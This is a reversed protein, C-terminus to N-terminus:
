MVVVSYYFSVDKAQQFWGPSMNLVGAGFLGGEPPTDFLSHRWVTTTDADLSNMFSNLPQRLAVTASNLNDQPVILSCFYIYQFASASSFSCFRVIRRLSFLCPLYWLVIRNHRDLVTAPEEIEGIMPNDFYRALKADEISMDGDPRPRTNKVRDAMRTVDWETKDTQFIFVVVALTILVIYLCKCSNSLAFAVTLALRYYEDSDVPDISRDM